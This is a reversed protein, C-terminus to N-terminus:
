FADVYRRVCLVIVSELPMGSRSRIKMGKRTFTIESEV